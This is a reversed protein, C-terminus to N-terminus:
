KTLKLKITERLHKYLKENGQDTMLYTKNNYVFM